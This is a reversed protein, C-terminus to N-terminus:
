KCIEGKYRIVAQGKDLDFLGFSQFNGAFGEYAGSAEVIQYTFEIMYIDERGTVETLIATDNTRLLGGRDNFFFHELELSLGTDTESQSLIEAKAAGAFVGSMSAILHTQDVMNAQATGGLTICSNDDAQVGSAFTGALTATVITASLLKKLM